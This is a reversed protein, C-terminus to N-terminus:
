WFGIRQDEPKYMGDGPQVDFARHFAYFNVVSGNTRFRAPAHPSSVLNKLIQADQVKTRRSQAFGIFFRQEGTYGDIVPAPRGELSLQYAKYAVALGANDAINESLTLAGNLHHGPLPQYGEYQRVLRAAQARFRQLDDNQWWNHLYGQGDYQSGQDDFGHSIEHGIVAGIGGYNVADDAQPNYFPPQLLAAPFVIENLQPHYYANVTQPTMFWEDRRPAQYLKDLMDQYYFTKLMRLNGILDDPRIALQSFDRWREPYAIKIRYNDLKARAQARTEPSMWELSDLRQRFASFLHAVLSDISAKAAPSFYRAVYLKGLAEGMGSEVLGVGRKWRPRLSQAGSLAQYYAFHAQTWSRSL